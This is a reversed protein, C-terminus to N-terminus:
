YSQVTWDMLSGSQIENAEAYAQIFSGMTNAVAIVPKQGRQLSQIAEQATAEAKQALLGQEICNHMLSTFLTSKAGVEGIATDLGFAKAEAKLQKSLEKIAKQKARDFDKIARLAASFQDAVERDVPVVKAEFRIGEYSRERRLMQGSAVFKSAVIQQLPVGGKDLINELTAMSSVAFQLDTRRAYLDMVDPRKAYTASNYFVGAASDVLERVFEARDPAGSTRWGSQSGGAEHAEDLILIANPAIARLFERRLPEKQGVTQLQSYTTFVASYSMGLRRALMMERMLQEQQTASGTRLEQGNSLPIIAKTDTIFPQFTYMGIDTVDRMMDAYLAKNQTVFVAAKGQQKAYRLISACIRGKGVGTQDGVIFGKGREINSIALASADVQEASFYRHLEEISAYGLRSALYTDIDGHEQEFRDLASQAASAMNYPILTGTSSGKSKSQYSAQKPQVKVESPEHSAAKTVEMDRVEKLRLRDPRQAVRGSLGSSAVGSFGSIGSPERDNSSSSLDRRAARDGSRLNRQQPDLNGGLSAAVTDASGRRNGRRGPRHDSTGSLFPPREVQHSSAKSYGVSQQSGREDLASDDLESTAADSNQLNTRGPKRDLTASQGRIPIADGSTDLDQPLGRVSDHNSHERSNSLFVNHIPENSLHEKLEVFSRYIKPVEVAPLMRQSQGRGAIVIVDIPFGAGQKRYLDGWISFHQIVNYHNYLLYYFARSERTNYRDSRREEDSGLKGGLILVAQGDDKMVELANLAIVHDIQTTWTDYLPFRKTHQNEDLVSGFPPNCIVRDVQEQPRYTTADHQTLQYYGRTTLEAIRDGNIENAIVKAPNTTILLAGNGATPEYVTTESNIGALTSALYAIPIPTSYAQQLVSTSSRVGLNPQHELLHVLRDHAQHTTKSKEILLRAARVVAAEMAEDVLKTLPSGPPIAEGLVAEAQTRAETIRAYSEGAILFEYFMQKLRERQNEVM